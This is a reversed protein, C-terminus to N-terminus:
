SFFFNSLVKGNTFPLLSDQLSNSPKNAEARLDATDKLFKKLTKSVFTTCIKDAIKQLTQSQNVIFATYNNVFQDDFDGIPM